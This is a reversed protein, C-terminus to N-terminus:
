AQGLIREVKELLTEPTFPKVIYNSVKAKVAEIIQAKEAEATVMLFPINETASNSRVWKLFDLGSMNPMNWDSIILDVKKTRLVSIAEKGDGAEIFEAFECPSLINRIVRRITVFDDVILVTLGKYSLPRNKDMLNRGGTMTSLRDPQIDVSDSFFGGWGMPIRIPLFEGADEAIMIENKDTM